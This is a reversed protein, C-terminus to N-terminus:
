GGVGTRSFRDAARVIKKLEDTNFTTEGVLQAIGAKIDKLEVSMDKIDQTSSPSPTTSPRAMNSSMNEPTLRDLGAGGGITKTGIGGSVSSNDPGTVIKKLYAFMDLPNTVVNGLSKIFTEVTNDDKKFSTDMGMFSFDKNIEEITNGTRFLSSIISSGVAVIQDGITDGAHKRM